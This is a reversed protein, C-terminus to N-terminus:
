FTRIPPSRVPPWRTGLAYGLTLVGALGLFIPLSWTNSM